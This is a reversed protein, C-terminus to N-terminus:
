CVLEALRDAAEPVLVALIKVALECAEPTPVEVMERGGHERQVRIDGDKPLKRVAHSVEGGLLIISIEGEKMISPVFPQVLWPGQTPDPKLRAGIQRHHLGFAGGSVVPKVIAGNRTQWVRDMAGNLQELTALETPVVPLGAEALELLYRKDFNWLLTELENIFRLKKSTAKLWSLFEAPREFYDWPSRVLGVDFDGWRATPDDWDLLQAEHGARELAAMLIPDDKSMGAAVKSSIVAVKM